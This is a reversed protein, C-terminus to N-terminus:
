RMCLVALFEWEFTFLLLLFLYFCSWGFKLFSWNCGGYRECMEWDEGEGNEVPISQFHTRQPQNQYKEGGRQGTEEDESVELWLLGELDDIGVGVFVVDDLIGICALHGCKRPNKKTLKREKANLWNTLKKKKKKFKPNIQLHALREPGTHVHGTTAVEPPM